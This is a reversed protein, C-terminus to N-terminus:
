IKLQGSRKKSMEHIAVGDKPYLIHVEKAGSKREESLKNTQIDTPRNKKFLDRADSFKLVSKPCNSICRGCGVCDSVNVEGKTEVLHQVPIGMDCEKNCKGCSICKERDAKIKYFGVKNLIGFTGGYPCLWRCWNRNGTIPIFLFSGFYIVGVMGFFTDVIFETKTFPFLVLAFLILYVGTLVWRLHRFKWATESKISEQRFAAGMTDRTGVCPCNWSCVAKRGFLLVLFLSLFFTLTFPIHLDRGWVAKGNFYGLAPETLAFLYPLLGWFGVVMATLIAIRKKTYSDKEVFVRYIGFVGIAMYESYHSLLISDTWRFFVENLWGLVSYILGLYSLLRVLGINLKTRRKTNM